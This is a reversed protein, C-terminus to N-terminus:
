PERYHHREQYARYQEQREQRRREEVAKDLRPWFESFFDSALMVLFVGVRWLIWVGIAWVVFTFMWPNYSTTDMADRLAVGVVGAAGRRDLLVRRRGPLVALRGVAVVVRSRGAAPPAPVAATAYQGM